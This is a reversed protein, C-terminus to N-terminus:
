PRKIRSRAGARKAFTIGAQERVPPGYETQAPAAQVAQQLLGRIEQLARAEGARDALYVVVLQNLSVGEAEAQGALRAHLSPPLRLQFKGSYQPPTKPEPLPLGEAGYAAIEMEVVVKMEALAQEPTDSFASLGEFEPSRAIYADDEASWFVHYGYKNEM